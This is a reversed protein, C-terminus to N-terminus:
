LAPRPRVQALYNLLGCVERWCALMEIKEGVGWRLSGGKDGSSLGPLRCSSCISVLISNTHTAGGSAPCATTQGLVMLEDTLSQGPFSTSSGLSGRFSAYGMHHHSQMYCVFCEFVSVRPCRVQHLCVSLRDELWPKHPLSGTQAALSTQPASFM